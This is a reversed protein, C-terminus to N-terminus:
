RRGGPVVTLAGGKREVMLAELQRSLSAVVAWEGAEAALKLARALDAEAGCSLSGVPAVEVGRERGRAVM